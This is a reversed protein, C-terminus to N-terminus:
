ERRTVADSDIERQAQRLAEQLEMVTAFRGEIDRHCARCIVKNLLMFDTTLAMDTSLDITHNPHRGTSIVYLVMGLAYIDAAVTGPPEPPPPMYSLTGVYTSEGPPRIEQLLGVDALKPVGKVFIINSPKIDRHILGQQHLFDLSEALVLGIRLCEAVALRKDKAQDRMKLLDRPQYQAPDKEWGASGADGLEMVYYFYGEAEDRELHRIKLLGPHRKSVPLFQALGRFEREYADEDQFKAREVMKLACWEGSRKHRALFVKGYAGAGFPEAAVHYRFIGEREWRCAVAWAMACPLQGGAVVLWPFWVNTYHSLLVGAWAAAVALLTGTVVVGPWRLRPLGAGLGVGALVVLLAELGLPGRRLWDRNMLNLFETALIEMGGSARDTWATYPTRFEDAEDPAASRAPRNGVFVIKGRYFGSPRNTADRYDVRQWAGEAAYYRLWRGERAAVAPPDLRAGAQRAVVWPFTLVSDPGPAHYLRRVVDDRDGDVMGVGWSVANTRFMLHPPEVRNGVLRPREMDELAAVLVVKGHERLAKALAIDSAPQDPRLEEFRVDLAVLPCEERRLHDLLRAHVLRDWRGDHGPSLEGRAGEGMEILVVENTVTRTACRFFFDYSRWRWREGAPALLLGLGCAVTLAAGLGPKFHKHNFIAKFKVFGNADSHSCCM